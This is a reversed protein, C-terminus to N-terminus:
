VDKTLLTIIENRRSNMYRLEALMATLTGDYDELSNGILIRTTNNDNGITELFNISKHLGKLRDHTIYKVEM